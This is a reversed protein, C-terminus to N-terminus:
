TYTVEDLAAIEDDDLTHATIVGEGDISLEIELNTAGAGFCEVYLAAVSVINTPDAEDIYQKPYRSYLYVNIADEIASRIAATDPSLSSIDVTFLRETMQEVLVTACMPKRHEDELYALVEAVKPADPIRDTGTLAVLAVIRAAENATVAWGAAVTALSAVAAFGFSLGALMPLGSRLFPEDARAFAFPLVPLICPALITLAGALYSLVFLTM